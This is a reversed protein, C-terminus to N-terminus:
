DQDEFTSWFRQTKTHKLERGGRGNSHHLGTDGLICKVMVEQVRAGRDSGQCAEYTEQFGDSGKMALVTQPVNMSLEVLDM